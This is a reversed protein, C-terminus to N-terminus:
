VDEGRQSQTMVGPIRRIMSRAGDTGLIYKTQWAEIASSIHNKIYAVLPWAPDGRDQYEYNILELHGGIKHGRSKLDAEFIGETIGQDSNFLYQYPTAIVV